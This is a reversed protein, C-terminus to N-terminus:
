QWNWGFLQNITAEDVHGETARRRASAVLTDWFRWFKREREDTWGHRKAQRFHAHYTRRALSRPPVYRRWHESCIWQDTALRGDDPTKRTRQCGEIACPNRDHHQRCRSQGNLRLYVKSGCCQCTLGSIM